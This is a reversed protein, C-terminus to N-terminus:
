AGGLRKSSEDAPADLLRVFCRLLHLMWLMETSHFMGVSYHDDVGVESLAHYFREHTFGDGSDFDDRLDDLTEVLRARQKKLRQTDCEAEPYSERIYQELWALADKPYFMTKPSKSAQVKKWLYEPSDIAGRLWPIPDIDSIRLVIEGVDGYVILAAPAKIVRFWYNSSGPRRCAWRDDTEVKLEHGKFAETALTAIIEANRTYTDREYSM